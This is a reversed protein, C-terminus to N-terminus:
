RAGGRAQEEPSQTSRQKQPRTHDPESERAMRANHDSLAGALSRAIHDSIVKACRREDLAALSAIIAHHEEADEELRARWANSGPHVIAGAVQMQIAGYISRLLRNGSLEVLGHHFAANLEIHQKPTMRRGLDDRRRQIDRLPMLAEEGIEGAVLREIVLKSAQVELGVRVQWLEAIQRATLRRVRFGRRPIAEIYGESAIQM